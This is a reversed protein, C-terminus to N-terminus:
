RRQLLNVEPGFPGQERRRGTSGEAICFPQLLRKTSPRHIDLEVRGRIPRDGPSDVLHMDIRVTAGRSGSVVPGPASPWRQSSIDNGLFREFGARAELGNVTATLTRDKGLHYFRIRGNSVSLGTAAVIIVPFALAVGARRLRQSM